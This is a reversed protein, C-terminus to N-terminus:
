RESDDDDDTVVQGNVIRVNGCQIGVVASGTAINVTGKDKAM